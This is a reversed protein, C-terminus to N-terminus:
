GERERERKKEGGRQSFHPIECASTNLIIAPIVGKMYDRKLASSRPPTRRRKIGPGQLHSPLLIHLSSIEKRVCGIMDYFSLGFGASVGRGERVCVCRGEQKRDLDVREDPKFNCVRKHERVNEKNRRRRARKRM